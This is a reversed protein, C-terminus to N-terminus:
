STAKVISLLALKTLLSLHCSISIYFLVQWALDLSKGHLLILMFLCSSSSLIIQLTLYIYQQLTMTTTRSLSETSLRHHKHSICCVVVVILLLYIISTIITNTDSVIIIISIHLQLSLIDECHIYLLVIVSSSINHQRCLLSM